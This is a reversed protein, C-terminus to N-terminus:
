QGNITTVSGTRDPQNDHEELVWYKWERTFYIFPKWEKSGEYVTCGNWPFVRDVSLKSHIFFCVFRKHTKCLLDTNHSDITSAATKKINM